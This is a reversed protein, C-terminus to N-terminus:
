DYEVRYMAQFLGSKVMVAVEQAGLPTIHSIDIERLNGEAFVGPYSATKEFARRVWEATATATAPPLAFFVHKGDNDDRLGVAV